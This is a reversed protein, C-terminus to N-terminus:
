GQSLNGMGIMVDWGRPTNPRFSTEGGKPVEQIRLMESSFPLRVVSFGMSAIAHCLEKPSATCWDKLYCSCNFGIGDFSFKVYIGLM